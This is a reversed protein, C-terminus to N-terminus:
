SRPSLWAVLRRLVSQEPSMCAVDPQSAGPNAPEDGAMRELEEPLNKGYLTRSGIKLMRAILWGKAGRFGTQLVTLQTGGEVERLVFRVRTDIPGGQWSWTMSRPADLELVECRVVGDFGPGPETTLTFAHGVRPEFDNPMLWVALREADTLARWVREIPHSYTRQVRLETV